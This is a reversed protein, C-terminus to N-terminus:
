GLILIWRASQIQSLPLGRLADATLDASPRSFRAWRIDRLSPTVCPRSAIGSSQILPLTFHFGLDVLNRIADLADRGIHRIDRRRRPEGEVMEEDEAVLRQQEM